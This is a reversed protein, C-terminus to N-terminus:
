AVVEDQADHHVEDQAEHHVEHEAEEANHVAEYEFAQAVEARRPTLEITDNGYKKLYHSAIGLGAGTLNAVASVIRAPPFPLQGAVTGTIKAADASASVAQGLLLQQDKWINRVTDAISFSAGLIGFGAQVHNLNMKFLHGNFEFAALTKTMTRAHVLGLETATKVHGLVDAGLFFATKAVKLFNPYPGIMDDFAAKGSLLDDIKSVTSVANLVKTTNSFMKNMPDLQIRTAELSEIPLEKVLTMFAGFGKLATNVVNVEMGHKVTRVGWQACHLLASGAAELTPVLADEGFKAINHVSEDFATHMAGFGARMDFGSLNFAM